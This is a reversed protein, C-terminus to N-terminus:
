RDRQLCRVKMSVDVLLGIWATSWVCDVGAIM